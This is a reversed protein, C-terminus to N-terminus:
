WRWTSRCCRTRPVFGPDRATLAVFSRVLLGAGAVVIVALAVEAIAIGTRLGAPQRVGGAVGREKLARSGAESSCPPALGFMVSTLLTSASRWSCCRAISVSRGSRPLRTLIARAASRDGVDRAPARRRRRHGSLVVARPQSSVCCGVSGAGLATRIAMERERGATRADAHLNAVNACAILLLLAVTGLLVLLPRRVDGVLREKLSTVNLVVEANTTPYTRALDRSITVLEDRAQEESVGPRLRGVATFIRLGPEGGARARRDRAAGDADM